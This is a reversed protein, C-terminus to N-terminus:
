KVFKSVIDMLEKISDEGHGDKIARSVCGNTHSELVTLGIKNVQARVAALQVLIDVCYRDDEVMKAIGRVQGEVTKLGTLLEKKYSDVRTTKM